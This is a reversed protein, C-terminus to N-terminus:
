APTFREVRGVIPSRATVGGDVVLTQGNVFGSSADDALFLIAQAVDEPTGLRTLQVDLFADPPGANEPRHTPREDSHPVFGVMVCNSRIGQPAYEVALSRTLALVGGKAATYADIGPHGLVAAVSSLSVIAGGRRGGMVLPLTHKLVAVVGRLNVALLADFRDLDVLHVPKDMGQRIQDIGAANNVIVDLRGFRADIAAALGAVAAEDTVDAPHFSATGGDSEIAAVVDAGAALDRGTVMVSAGEAALRAATARGLGHTSGTVLAVKGDMRSM